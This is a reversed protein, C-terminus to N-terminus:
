RYTGRGGYSDCPVSNGKNFVAVGPLEKIQTKEKL